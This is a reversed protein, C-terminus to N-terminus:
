HGFHKFDAPVAATSLPCFCCGKQEGLRRCRRTLADLSKRLVAGLSHPSRYCGVVADAILLNSEVTPHGVGIENDDEIRGQDLGIIHRCPTGSSPIM